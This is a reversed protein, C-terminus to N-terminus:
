GMAVMEGNPYNRSLAYRATGTRTGSVTRPVTPLSIATAPPSALSFILTIGGGSRARVASFHRNQPRLEWDQAASPVGEIQPCHRSIQRSTNLSGLDLEDGRGPM